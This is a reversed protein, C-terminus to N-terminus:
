AGPLRWPARYPKSLLRNAEEDNVIRENESDWHIKRETLLAINGLHGPITSRHLIEVDCIARTRSKVCDLFNRVHPQNLASIGGSMPAMQDKEPMVDFGARDVFLTGNAGHFQMGYEHNDVFRGNGGRYSYTLTFGPYDYIVEMTDPTERNDPVVYKGGSASVALPADAGMGFHIIDILHTGWDTMKGGAYDWFFRFTYHCRNPNYPRKPAPGLWMDYDIEPPPNCDPPNGIGDPLENGVYWTRCLSVKGLLGSRVIEAARQFHAGSRQQTGGQVVREYRRAANVMARGEAISAALPKEVYVDKGAECALITPLAHWHDPTAVIVADIDKRELLERFDSYATVKEGAGDATQAAREKDVDCVAAFEVDPNGLFFSMNAVGQGGCGILGMVIRDNAGFVNQSLFIPQVVAAAAAAGGAKQLFQRRTIRDPM